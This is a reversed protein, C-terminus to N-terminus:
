TAPPAGALTERAIIRFRGARDDQRFLCISSMAIAAGGVRESHAQVLADCVPQRQAEPLPGTLTMHFRFEENVYPYGFRDLYSMQRPTLPSALRRKRDAEGLPARFPEFAAVMTAALGVVPAADGEIQLTVFRGLSVVRLRVSGAPPTTRAVEAFTQLLGAEDVGEALHFPAKLTAHFGYRRPEATAERWAEPSMLAPSWQAVYSGTAADYGIVESGFRWLASALPPAFYIAYRAPGGTM